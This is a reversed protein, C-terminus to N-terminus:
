RRGTRFTRIAAKTYSRMRWAAINVMPEQSLLWDVAQQLSEGASVRRAAEKEIEILGPHRLRQEIGLDHAPRGANDEKIKSRWARRAERQERLTKVVGGKSEYYCLKKLAAVGPWM